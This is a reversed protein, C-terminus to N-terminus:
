NRGFLGLVGHCTVMPRSGTEIRIMKSASWYPERAVQEQTLGAEKRLRRLLSPVQVQQAMAKPTICAGLM